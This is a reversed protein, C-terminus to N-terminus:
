GSEWPSGVQGWPSASGKWFYLSQHMDGALGAWLLPLIRRHSSLDPLPRSAARPAWSMALIDGRGPFCGTALLVLAVHSGLWFGGPAGLFPFTKHFQSFFFFFAKGVPGPAALEEVRGQTLTPGQPHGTGM